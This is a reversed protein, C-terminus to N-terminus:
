LGGDRRMTVEGPVPAAAWTEQRRVYMIRQVVTAVTLVALVWLVAPLGWDLGFGSLLGGVGVLILREMREAFGVNCELGLGEARARVYSVIQGGVLCVLTVAALVPQGSTALWWALAAFIAGDAIRDMTSDLLAGYRSSRGSARAMAGDLVDLLACATIVITAAVLRGRAAFVVSGVVVGATGVVTIADPSVGARILWRGLPAFAARVANKFSGFIKAM